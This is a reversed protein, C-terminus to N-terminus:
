ETRLSKVPNATAAKYTHYSIAIGASILAALGAVAYVVWDVKIRYAFNQLWEHTFWAGLPIAAALSIIAMRIFDKNLLIFVNVVGAGLVKRIGIEKTRNVANLGSLGFLGLCAVLVAMWSFVSITQMWKQYSDYFRQVTEDMFSYSFPANGTISNWNTRIRDILQPVNQGPKIKCWYYAAMNPSCIHYAPGIKQTLGWFNYDKCVGIIRSGMARNIEDMPPKGLMSYLTENVVIAKSTSSSLSDFLEAPIEFEATDASIDPSFDRGKVIPIKNFGFYGYDVNMENIFEQRGNIIHGNMNFGNAFTFTSATVKEIGPDSLAFQYFFNKMRMSENGSFREPAELLLVQEKDFGLDKNLMFKMQRGIALSSIILVICATYQLVVFVRSLQPSIKYASFGRLIKLPKLGSMAMAPYIGALLGLALSLAALMVATSGANINRLQLNAGTLDNFFPLAAIALFYGAAVSLLVLLQTETWFQLIIQRRGAGVTKRIGVEQSRSATSTLTLLVYNICAILLIILSLSLLQYIRESSTYHFWGDSMNFHAAAFPRLYAHFDIPKKDKTYSEMEKVSEAFRNKCYADVKVAFDKENVNDQLDLICLHSYQNLGNARNKEFNPEAQLPVVMDFQMSSNAPFNKAVATIIFPAEERLKLRITKGIPNEDGFYKKAAQESIVMNNPQLLATKADGEILPFSFVSFFNSEAFAVNQGTVKFSQNNHRVVMEPWVKLRTFNKVEPFNQKIDEPLTIPIRIMNRAQDDKYLFSFFSKQPESEGFNFLNTLELRYLNRGEKHFKDCSNEDQVYLVTLIVFACAVALGALNIFSYVKNRKLNRFSQKLNILM